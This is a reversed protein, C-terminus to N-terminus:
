PFKDSCLTAIPCREDQRRFHNKCNIVVGFDDEIPV